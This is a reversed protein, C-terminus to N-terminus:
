SEKFFDILESYKKGDAARLANIYKARREKPPLEPYWSPTAKQNQLCLYNTIIRSFRGNGNPFPHIFVLRHHFHALLEPWSDFSDNELWFNVDNIFKKMESAVKWPSVGINKESTRYKGAWRWVEGFLEKHLKKFFAESIYTKTSVEDLWVLGQNINMQEAADLERMNTIHSLRLGKREKDSLVTHGDRDNFFVEKSKKM